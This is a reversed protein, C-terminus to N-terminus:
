AAPRGAAGWLVDGWSPSRGPLFFQGAEAVLVLVLALGAGSAFWYRWGMLRGLLTFLFSVLAVPVATRMTEM